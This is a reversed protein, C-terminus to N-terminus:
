LWNRIGGGAFKRNMEILEPHRDLLRLISGLDPPMKGSPLMSAITRVLMLDEPYDVTLRIEPRQLERNASFASIKFDKQHEFIYSTVLESRNKRTGKTHSAKLASLNIIEFGAGEPLNPTYTFDVKSLRHKELASDIAQWYIFPDESTIRFVVTAYVHEAAAIVRQLVDNDDGHVFKLDHERAYEVFIENGSKESIALVIEDILKSQRLQLIIYDLITRSDVKQLPKAFLRTSDVRCAITAAVKFNNLRVISPILPTDRRVRKRTLAGMAQHESIEPVTRSVRKLAVDKRAIRHGSPLERSAVIRKKMNKRYILEGGSIDLSPSGGSQYVKKLLRVMQGFEDPNLASQYDEEKLSRDSTIHKEIVNAGFGLAVMPLYMALESSGDVHDMYGVPRGYRRKLSTIRRLNVESLRTPFGQFGHMLVIQFGGNRKILSIADDIENATCGSCSLLIPKGTSAVYKLLEANNVDSSHVKFADVKARSAFMARRLSFVDAFVRIGDEKVRKIIELWVSDDIELKEFLDYERHNTVLLERAKFFQFKIADPKASAAEQVLKRLKSPVGMHGNAIEAIVFLRDDPIVFDSM